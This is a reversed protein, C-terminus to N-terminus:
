GSFDVCALSGLRIWTRLNTGTSLSSEAQAPM